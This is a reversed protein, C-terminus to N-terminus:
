ARHSNHPKGKPRGLGLAQCIEGDIGRYSVLGFTGCPEFRSPLQNGKDDFFSGPRLLDAFCHVPLVEDRSLEQHAVTQFYGRLWPQRNTCAPPILLHNCDLRPIDHVLSSFANYIYILIANEFFGIRADLRIVRGFGYDGDRVQYVFVDGARLKKRSPTLVRM